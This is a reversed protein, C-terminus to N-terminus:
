KLTIDKKLIHRDLGGYKKKTMIISYGLALANNLSPKNDPHITCMLYSYGDVAADREAEKMLLQQLHHGRAEPRTAAVDCLAVKPLETLPLNIDYGLNDERLGPYTLIFVSATKGSENDIAKYIYGEGELPFDEEVAFFEKHELSHFVEMIIERTERDEKLPIRKIEFM